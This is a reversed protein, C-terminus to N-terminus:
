SELLSRGLLPRGALSAHFGYSILCMLCLLVALSRGAYWDSSNLTIPLRTLTNTITMEVVLAFLGFRLLVIVSVAAVLVGLFIDLLLHEGPLTVVPLVVIIAAVIALKDSHFAIRLLLLILL